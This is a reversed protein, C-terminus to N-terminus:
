RSRSRLYTRLPKWYYKEWGESVGVFDQKPVNAHTLDIRGKKGDQVFRIILISDPDTKYFKTGRWRQVIMEGPVTFLMTGSLAGDFAAFRSGPKGSIQVAHGTMAAHRKPDLYIDYLEVAAANFRVSHEVSKLM